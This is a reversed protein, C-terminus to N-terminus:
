VVAFDFVACWEILGLGHRLFLLLLHSKFFLGWSLMSITIGELRSQLCKVPEICRWTREHTLLETTKDFHGSYTKWCTSYTHRYVLPCQCEKIIVTQLCCFMVRVASRPRKASDSYLIFFLGWIFNNFGCNSHSRAATHRSVSSWRVTQLQIGRFLAKGSQRFSYGGLCLAEGSQRFNYAGLCLAECSQRFNYAGPCLKTQSGSITHGLVYLKVHSGSITYGLVYLKVHSGSTTHGLVYLKAQSGSVTHGLVSSQRGEQLCLKAQINAQFQIGWSM